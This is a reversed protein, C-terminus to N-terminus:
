ELDFSHIVDDLVAEDQEFSAPMSYGAIYFAQTGQVVIVYKCKLNYGETTGTFVIEYAPTGDDLTINGESFLEYNAFHQSLEQSFQPGHEALTAGEGVLSQSVTVSPVGMGSMFTVIEGHRGTLTEMWGEPYTISFGYEASTYTGGASPTPPVYSYTPLLKFSDVIADIAAESQDFVADEGKAGVALGQKDRVLIVFKFKEVKGTGLDGRGVMEYGSIGEGITVDGESILEFDPTSEMYEKNETVYDALIVDEIKYEISVLASLTEEPNTLQVSFYTGMGQASETWGEPYEISFGHETSEYLTMPIPTPTPVPTPTPEAPEGCGATVLALTVIIALLISFKGRRSM